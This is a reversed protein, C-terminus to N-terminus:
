QQRQAAEDHWNRCLPLNLQMDHRINNCVQRINEVTFILNNLLSNLIPIKKRLKARWIEYNFVISVTSLFFNQTKLGAITGTFLFNKMAGENDRDINLYNACFDKVIAKTIPCDFFLHVFTEDPIVAINSITCFTCAQAIENNFHAVRVNLGLMNNKFKFFFERISIPLTSIMWLSNFYKLDEPVPVPLGVLNFYTKTRRPLKALNTAVSYKEFMKRFPKSGKKFRRVFTGIETGADTNVYKKIKLFSDRICTRLDDYERDSIQIDLKTRAENVGIFTTGNTTFDSIRLNKLRDMDCNRGHHLIQDSVNNINRRNHILIPNGFFGSSFFNTGFSYFSQKFKWFSNALIKLIPHFVPVKAPDLNLIKGQTLERLDVRWNDICSIEARSATSDISAVAVSQAIV